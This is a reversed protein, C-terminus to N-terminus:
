PAGRRSHMVDPEVYMELGEAPTHLRWRGRERLAVGPRPEGFQTSAAQQYAGVAHAVLVAGPEVPPLLVHPHLVDVNLCLPGSVLAASRPGSGDLAEIRPPDSIAGPLLNTGADCVVCRSGDALTKVAVVTFALQVADAVLARGPELLVRRTFGGDRLAAAVERAHASVEPAPPFGGGLDIAAVAHGAADLERALRALLSAALAHEAPPRPWRVVVKGSGPEFDTSVLHTSLACVELGLAAARGAAHPIEAPAIGFRTRAGTFSDLAVRLGIREVGRAAARELEDSSDALVLAGAAGARTLLADSKAPGDVVIRAPDAEIIAAALTYEAACVVEAGAGALEAAQLFALLRNTKYSYAIQLDPWEGRWARDFSELNARFRDVDALWLPSGHRSLLREISPTM